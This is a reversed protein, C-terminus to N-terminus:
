FAVVNVLFLFLVLMHEFHKQFRLYHTRFNSSKLFVLNKTQLQLFISLNLNRNNINLKITIAIIRPTYGNQVQNIALLRNLEVM